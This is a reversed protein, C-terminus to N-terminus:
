KAQLSTRCRMAHVNIYPLSYDFKIVLVNHNDNICNGIYGHKM